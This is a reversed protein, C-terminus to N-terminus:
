SPPTTPSDSLTNFNETPPPHVCTFGYLSSASTSPAAEELAVHPCETLARVARESASEEVAGVSSHAGLSSFHLSRRGQQERLRPPVM